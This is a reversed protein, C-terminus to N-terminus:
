RLYERELSNESLPVARVTELMAHGDVIERMADRIAELTATSKFEVETDNFADREVVLHTVVVPINAKAASAQFAEVDAPCEARFSYVQM